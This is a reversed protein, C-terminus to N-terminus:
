PSMEGNPSDLPPKYGKSIRSNKTYSACRKSFERILLPIKNNLYGNPAAGNFDIAIQVAGFATMLNQIM